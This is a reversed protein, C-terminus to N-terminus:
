TVYVHKSLGCRLSALGQVQRKKSGIMRDDLMGFPLNIFSVRLSALLDKVVLVVDGSRAWVEWLSRTPPYVMESYFRPFHCIPDHPELNSTMLVCLMGLPDHKGKSWTVTPAIERALSIAVYKSADGLGNENHESRPKRVIVPRYRPTGTDITHIPM